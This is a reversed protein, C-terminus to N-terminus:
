WEFIVIGAAGSGKGYNGQGPGAGMAGAGYLKGDKSNNTGRAGGMPGAGAGPHGTSGSSEGSGGGSGGGSGYIATAGSNIKSQGGAGGVNFSITSGPTVSSQVQRWGGSGGAGGPQNGYGGNGGNGGGGQVTIKLSTVGAPVTFNGSSTHTSMGLASATAPETQIGGGPFKVGTSVLETSM